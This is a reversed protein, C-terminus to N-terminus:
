LTVLIFLVCSLVLFLFQPYLFILLANFFDALMQLWRM